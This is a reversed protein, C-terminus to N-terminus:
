VPNPSITYMLTDSAGPCGVVLQTSSISTQTVVGATTRDQILYNPSNIYTGTFVITAASGSCNITGSETVSNTFTGAGTTGAASNTAVFNNGSGIIVKSGSVTQFIAKGSGGGTLNVNSVNIRSTADLTVGVGVESGVCTQFVCPGINSSTVFVGAASSLNLATIRITSLSSVSPNSVPGLVFLTGNIYGGTASMDDGGFFLANGTIQSNILSSGHSALSVAAQNGGTSVGIARIDVLNSSNDTSGTIAVGASLATINQGFLDKCQAGCAIISPAAVVHTQSLGDFGIGRIMVSAANANFLAVNTTDWAFDGPLYFTVCGSGDGLILSGVPWTVGTSLPKNVFYGGCPFYLIGPVVSALLATQAALIANTDDNGVIINANGGNAGTGAGDINVNKADIFSLLTRKNLFQAVAATGWGDVQKGVDSALFVGSTTATLKFTGDGNNSISYAQVTLKRTNGFAGYAPAQVNFTNVGNNVVPIQSAAAVGSIQNFAYDNAAAAIAGTRGFVSSVPPTGGLSASKLVGTNDDYFLSVGDTGVVNAM